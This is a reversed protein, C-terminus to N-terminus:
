NSIPEESVEVIKQQKPMLTKGIQELYKPMHESITANQRVNDAIAEKITNNNYDVREFASKLVASETSLQGYRVNYLAICIGLM